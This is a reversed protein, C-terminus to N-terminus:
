NRWANASNLMGRLRYVEADAANLTGRLRNLMGRLRYVEADAEDRECRIRDNQRRLRGLEVAHRAQEEGLEVAHRNTAEELQELVDDHLRRLHQFKEGSQLRNINGNLACIVKRSKMVEKLLKEPTKGQRQHDVTDETFRVRKAEPQADGDGGNRKAEREANGSSGGDLVINGVNKNNNATVSNVISTPKAEREANGSSGGVLIISGVNKNHNAAVSISTNDISVHCGRAAMAKVFAAKALEHKRKELRWKVYRENSCFSGEEALQVQIATQDKEDLLDYFVKEKKLLCAKAPTM